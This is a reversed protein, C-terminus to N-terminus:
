NKSITEYTNNILGKKVVLSNDEKRLYVKLGKFNTHPKKNIRFQEINEDEDLLPKNKCNEDECESSMSRWLSRKKRVAKDTSTDYYNKDLVENCKQKTIEVSDRSYVEEMNWFLIVKDSGYRYTWNKIYIWFSFAMELGNNIGPLVLRNSDYSFANTGKVINPILINDKQTNVYYIIIIILIIVLIISILIIINM